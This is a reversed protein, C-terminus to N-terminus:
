DSNQPAYMNKAPKAIAQTAVNHGHGSLASHTSSMCIACHHMMKCDQRYCSNNNFSRCIERGDPLFPGRRRDNNVGLKGRAKTAGSAENIARATPNDRKSVLQFDRLDQRYTGWEFKEDAQMDRYEKDYLLVSYWVYKSALRFIDATYNIYANVNALINQKLLEQMIRMNAFGWEEITIKDLTKKKGVRFEIDGALSITQYQPIPEPWVYNVIQLSKGSKESSCAIIDNIKEGKNTGESNAKPPHQLKKLDEKEEEIKRRLEVKRRETKLRQLERELDQIEDSNDPIDNIADESVQQEISDQFEGDSEGSATASDNSTEIDTKTAKPGKLSEIIDKLKEGAKERKERGSAMM